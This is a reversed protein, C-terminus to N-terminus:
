KCARMAVLPLGLFREVRWERFPTSELIETAEIGDISQAAVVNRFYSVAAPGPVFPWNRAYDRVIEAPAGRDAELVVMRGGPKLVRFIEGIGRARDPWHKISAFSYVLDFRGEAFPLALADGEQFSVNAQRARAAKARAIGIMTPSADVGVVRARPRQRAFLLAAHGPGTGVDLVEGAEVLAAIESICRDYLDEIGGAVVRDYLHSAVPGWAGKMSLFNM